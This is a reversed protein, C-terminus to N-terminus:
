SLSQKRFLDRLIPKCNELAWEWEGHTPADGDWWEAYFTVNRLKELDESEADSILGKEHCLSILKVLSPSPGFTHNPVLSVLGQRMLMRALVLTMWENLEVTKFLNDLSQPEIGKRHTAKKITKDVDNKLKEISVGNKDLKLNSLDKWISPLFPSMVFFIFPLSLPSQNELASFYIHVTSIFIVAIIYARM